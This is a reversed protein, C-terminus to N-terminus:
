CVSFGVLRQVMDNVAARHAAAVSHHSTVNASPHHHVLTWCASTAVRDITAAEVGDTADHALHEVRSLDPEEREADRREVNLPPVSERRAQVTSM